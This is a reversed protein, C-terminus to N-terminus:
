EPLELCVIRWNTTKNDNSVEIYRGKHQIGLAPDFYMFGKGQFKNGHTGRESLVIGFVERPGLLTEITKISSVKYTTEGRWKGSRWAFTATKGVELPFLSDLADKDVTNAAGQGSVSSWLSRYNSWTTDQLRLSRDGKVHVNGGDAAVVEYVVGSNYAIKTGIPPPRWTGDLDQALAPGAFAFAALVAALLFRGM